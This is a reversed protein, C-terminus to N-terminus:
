LNEPEYGYVEKFNTTQIQDMRNTYYVFADFDKKNFKSTIIEERITRIMKEATRIKESSYNLTQIDKQLQELNAIVTLRDKLAKPSLYTPYQVVTNHLRDVPLELMSYVCDDFDLIQYMSITNTAELETISNKERFTNLNEVITNWDGGRFYKYTNKGGDISIRIKSEKFQNLLDALRTYDAETNFNSTITISMNAINPHKVINELFHWFQKQYLPEGGGIDFYTINPFNDVLDTIFEDVQKLTWNLGTYKEVFPKIKHKEDLETLSTNKILSAWKSSYEPSCHRCSLNCANSFRLEIYTLDKYDISGDLAPRSIAKGKSVKQRYSEVGRKEREMCSHCHPIWEENQLAKRLNKFEENNFFDSPKVSNGFSALKGHGRPCACIRDNPKYNIM